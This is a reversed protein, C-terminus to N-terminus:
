GFCDHRCTIVNLKGVKETLGRLEALGIGQKTKAERNHDRYSFIIHMDDDTDQDMDLDHEVMAM